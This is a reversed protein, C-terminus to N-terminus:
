ASAGSTCRRPARSRRRRTSTGGAAAPRAVDMWRRNGNFTGAIPLIGQALALCLALMVSFNGLEPIM